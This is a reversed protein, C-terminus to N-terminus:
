KPRVDVKQTVKNKSRDKTLVDVIYYMAGYGDFQQKNSVPSM